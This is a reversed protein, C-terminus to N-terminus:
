KEGSEPSKKKPFQRVRSPPFPSILIRPFSYTVKRIEDEGINWNVAKGRCWM